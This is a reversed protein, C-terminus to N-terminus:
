RARARWQDRSQGYLDITYADLPAPLQVGRKRVVSGLREALAISATNAPDICHVVEDWGLADFAWDISAAAGEYAYGKGQAARMLGWGVEDGPWGGTKGGPRWPGLRGLWRGSAKEIVSFFGFGQIAWSGAITAMQRWAGQPASVGGIFRMTEEEACMAVFGALDAEVPPRLILRPTELTPGIM